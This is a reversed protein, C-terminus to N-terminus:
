LALVFAFTLADPPRFVDPFGEPVGYPTLTFGAALFLMGACGATECLREVTFAKSVRLPKVTGACVGCTFAGFPLIPTGKFGGTECLRVVTFVGSVCVSKGAGCCAFIRTFMDPPLFLAVSLNVFVMCFVACPTDRFVAFM